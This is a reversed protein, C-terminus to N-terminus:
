SQFKKDEKREARGSFAFGLALRFGPFGYVSFIVIVLYYTKNIGDGICLCPPPSQPKGTAKQRDREKGKREKGKEEKGREGGLNGYCATTSKIFDESSIIITSEVGTVIRGSLNSRIGFISKELSRDVALFRRSLQWLLPSIVRCSWMQLLM